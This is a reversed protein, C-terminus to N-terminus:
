LHDRDANARCTEYNTHRITRFNDISMWGYTRTGKVRGFVWLHGHRNKVWCHFYMVRGSGLRAVNACHGAYPGKKLNYSGKMVGYGGDLNSTAYGACPPPVASAASAAPANVLAATMIAGTTVLMGVAKAAFRM